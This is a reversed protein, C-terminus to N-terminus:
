FEKFRWSFHRLYPHRFSFLNNKVESLCVHLSYRILNESFWLAGLNSFLFVDGHEGHAGFKSWTSTDRISPYWLKHLGSCFYPFPSHLFFGTLFKLLALRCLIIKVFQSCDLRTQWCFPYIYLYPLRARERRIFRSTMSCKFYQNCPLALTPPLLWIDQFWAWAATCGWCIVHVPLLKWLSTDALDKWESWNDINSLHIIDLCQKM